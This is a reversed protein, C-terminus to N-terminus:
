SGLHRAQAAREALVRERLPILYLIHLIGCLCLLAVVLSLWPRARVAVASITGFLVISSIAITKARRPMGLGDRYDRVMPGVGPLRLVWVEFRPSSRSFSYAAVIFFITSPLVPLVVGLGGVGVNLWGFGFWILRIARSSVVRDAGEGVEPLDADPGRPDCTTSM